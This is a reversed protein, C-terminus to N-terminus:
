TPEFGVGEVLCILWIGAQIDATATAHSGTPGTGTKTGFRTSFDAMTEPLHSTVMHAYRMTMAIAKHGLIAQLASIDGTAQLLRSAFGHRLDRCRLPV